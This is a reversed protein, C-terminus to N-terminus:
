GVFGVKTKKLEKNIILLYVRIKTIKKNDKLLFGFLQQEPGCSFAFLILVRTRRYIQGVNLAYIIIVVHKGFIDTMFEVCM